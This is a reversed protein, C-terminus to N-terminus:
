KKLPNQEECFIMSFDTRHQRSVSQLSKVISHVYAMINEIMKPDQIRGGSYHSSNM